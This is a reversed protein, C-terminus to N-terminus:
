RAKNSPKDKKPDFDITLPKTPLAHVEDWIAKQYANTPSTAWGEECAKRYTTLKSKTVGLNKLNNGVIMTADFTQADTVLNDLDSPKTVTQMPSAKYQSTCAGFTAIAVRAFERSFRKDGDLASVNMVGWQSEMAVLSMPLAPDNIVYMAANAGKPLADGLKWTGRQLKVNVKLMKNFTEICSELASDPFKDQANVIVIMGTGEKTIIGGTKKLSKERIAAKEAETRVPRDAPKKDAAMIVLSAVMALMFLVTKM